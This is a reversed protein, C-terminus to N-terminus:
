PDRYRYVEMRVLRQVLLPVELSMFLYQPDPNELPAMMPVVGIGLSYIIQYSLPCVLCETM